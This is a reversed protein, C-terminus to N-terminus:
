VFALHRASVAPERLLLTVAQTPATTTATAAASAIVAPQAQQAQTPAAAIVATLSLALTIAKSLISPQMLTIPPSFLPRPYGQSKM